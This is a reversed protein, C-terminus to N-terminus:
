HTHTKSVSSRAPFTLKTIGNQTTLQPSSAFTITQERPSGENLHMLRCGMCKLVDYTIMNGEGRLIGLKNKFSNSNIHGTLLNSNMHGSDSFFFLHKHGFSLISTLMPHLNILVKLHLFLLLLSNCIAWILEQRLFDIHFFM